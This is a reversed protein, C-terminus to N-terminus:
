EDIRLDESYYEIVYNIPNEEDPSHGFKYFKEDDSFFYSIRSNYM